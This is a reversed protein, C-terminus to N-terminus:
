QRMSLEKDIIVLGQTSTGIMKIKELIASAISEEEVQERIFWQLEVSTAHDKEAISQELIKGIMETIKQEHAYANEFAHLPSEWKLTPQAIETLLVSGNREIVYRYFKMAHSLEEASQKEMWHAFGPLNAGHFYNAMALYLYASSLEANIQEALISEISKRINM